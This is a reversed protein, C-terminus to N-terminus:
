VAPLVVCRSHRRVSTASIECCRSKRLRLHLLADRVERRFRGSLVVKTLYFRDLQEIFIDLDHSHSTIIPAPPSVRVRVSSRGSGPSALPIDFTWQGGGTRTMAQVVRAELAWVPIIM